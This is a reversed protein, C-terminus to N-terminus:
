RKYKVYTSDPMEGKEQKECIIHLGADEDPHGHHFYWDKVKFSGSHGHITITMGRFLSLPLIGEATGLGDGNALQFFTWYETM